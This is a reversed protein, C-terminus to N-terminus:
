RRESAARGYALGDDDFVRLREKRNQQEHEQNAREQELRKTDGRARHHGRQELSIKNKHVLERITQAQRNYIRLEQLEAIRLTAIHDHEAQRLIRTHVVDLPDDAQRAVDHVVVLARLAERDVALRHRYLTDTRVVTGLRI